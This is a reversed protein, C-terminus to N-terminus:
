KRIAINKSHVTVHLGLPRVADRLVLTWRRGGLWDVLSAQDAGPGYAVKIGPPVIQRVAFSLPIHNGFGAAVPIIHSTTGALPTKAPTPQGPAKTSTETGSPSPEAAAAPPAAPAQVPPAQVPLMTFDSRTPTIATLFCISILVARM